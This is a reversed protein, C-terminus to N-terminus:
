RSASVDARDAVAWKGIPLSRVVCVKVWGGGGVFSWPVREGSSAHTSSSCLWASSRWGIAGALRAAGCWCAARECGSSVRLRRRASGSAPAVSAPTTRARTKTRLMSPEAATARAWPLMKTSMRGALVNSRPSGLSTSISTSTSTSATIDSPCHRILMQGRKLTVTLSDNVLDPSTTPGERQQSQPRLPLSASQANQQEGATHPKRQSM